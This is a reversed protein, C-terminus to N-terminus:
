QSQGFDKLEMVIRTQLEQGALNTQVNTESKATGHLPIEPCYWSRNVGSAEIGMDMSGASMTTEAWQCALTKGNVTVGEEGSAAKSYKPEPLMPDAMSGILPDAYVAFPQDLPIQVEYSSRQVRPVGDVVLSSPDEEEVVITATKEDRAKVTQKVTKTLALKMAAVEKTQVHSVWDGVRARRYPNDSDAAECFGCAIFALTVPIWFAARARISNM